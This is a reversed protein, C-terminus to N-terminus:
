AFAFSEDDVTEEIMNLDGDLSQMVVYKTADPFRRKFTDPVFIPRECVFFKFQLSYLFYKMVRILTTGERNTVLSKKQVFVTYACRACLAIPVTRAPSPWQNWNRRIQPDVYPFSGYLFTIEDFQSYDFQSDCMACRWVVPSGDQDTHNDPDKFVFYSCTSPVMEFVTAATTNGDQYRMLCNENNSTVELARVFSNASM